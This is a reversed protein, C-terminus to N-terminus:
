PSLKKFLYDQHSGDWGENSEKSFNSLCGLNKYDKLIKEADELSYNPFNVELLIFSIDVENFDIGKL